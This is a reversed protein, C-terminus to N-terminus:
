RVRQILLVSALVVASGTVQIPTLKEGLFTAALVITFVLESTSLVSAQTAGVRKMGAYLTTFPIVGGLIALGLVPGLMAGTSPYPVYAAGFPLSAYDIAALVGFFIAAGLVIGTSVTLPNQNQTLRDGIMLYIGYWLGMAVGLLIGLPTLSQGFPDITLVGGALSLGVCIWKNRSLRQRLFFHSLLAVFAPYLYLFVATLSAGVQELTMFYLTAEIGIGVLGLLVARSFARQDRPLARALALIVFLFPLAISFRWFLMQNRTLGAQYAFQGFIGLTSFGFASLIVLFAGMGHHYGSGAGGVM